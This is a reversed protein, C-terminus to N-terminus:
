ENRKNILHNLYQYFLDLEDASGVVMISDEDIETIHINVRVNKQGAMADTDQVSQSPALLAGNQNYNKM